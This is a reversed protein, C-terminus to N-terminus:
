DEDVYGAKKGEVLIGAVGADLNALEGSSFPGIEGGSHDVFKEVDQNFIIMRNKEKEDKRGEMLKGLEKDGDEFAKVLRDFVEREHPLMNEYDRKM